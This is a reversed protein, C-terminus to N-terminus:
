FYDESCLCHFQPFCPFPNMHMTRTRKATDLSLDGEMNATSFYNFDTMQKHLLNSLIILGSVKNRMQM